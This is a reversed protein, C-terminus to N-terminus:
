SAGRCVMEIWGDYRAERVWGLGDLFRPHEGMLTTLKYWIPSPYDHWRKLGHCPYFAGDSVATSHACADPLHTADNM